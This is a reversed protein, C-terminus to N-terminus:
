RVEAQDRMAKSRRGDNRGKGGNLVEQRLGQLMQLLRIRRGVSVEGYGIREIYFIFFHFLFLALGVSGYEM